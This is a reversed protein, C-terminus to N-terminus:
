FLSLRVYRGPNERIDRVLLELDDLTRVMREHLAPDNILKGATGDGRHVQDLLANFEKFTARAQQVTALSEKYLAPDKALRGLTGESNELSAVFGQFQTAATEGKASFTVMKEYLLPDNLIRALSGKGGSATEVLTRLRGSLSTLNDYLAPDQLFKGLTGERSDLSEVVEGLRVFVQHAEEMVEDVGRTSVGQIPGEPATGQQGGPTIAVYKEGLLGRTKITIVADSGVRPLATTEIQLTVTIQDSREPLTFAVDAVTGVMVGSLWVPAGIKLGQVNPLLVQLTAKPAFLRTKEGVTFIALATVSLAAFLVIGVRVEAWRIDLSRKV